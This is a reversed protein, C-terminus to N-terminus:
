ITKMSKLLGTMMVKIKEIDDLIEEAENKDIFGLDRSLWVQTRLEVLSGRSNGIFQRQEGDTMRAGGESLNSVVSVSARRMQTILGYIEEKPYKSTAKYIKLVLKYATKFVNLDEM